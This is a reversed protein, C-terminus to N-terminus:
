VFVLIFLAATIEAFHILTIRRVAIQHFLSACQAKATKAISNRAKTYRKAVANYDIKM